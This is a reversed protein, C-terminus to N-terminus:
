NEAMEFQSQSTNLGTCIYKGHNQIVINVIKKLQLVIVTFTLM